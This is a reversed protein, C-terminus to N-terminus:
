LGNSHLLTLPMPQPFTRELLHMSALRIKTHPVDYYYKYNSSYAELTPKIWYWWEYGSEFYVIIEPLQHPYIHPWDGIWQINKNTDMVVGLMPMDFAASEFLNQHTAFYDSFNKVAQQQEWEDQIVFPSGEAEGNDVTVSGFPYVVLHGPQWGVLSTLLILYYPWTIQKNKIGQSNWLAIALLPWALALWFPFPYYFDLHGPNMRVASLNLALWPLACVYGLVLLPNRVYFAWIITLIFPLWIFTRYSLFFGLREQILDWNLHQWPPTGTYVFAMNDMSMFFESKLWLVILSYFLAVIMFLFIPKLLDAQRHCVKLTVGSLLLLGFLHLGADERIMLCLIFPLLACIYKTQSLFLFFWLILTPIGMELHPLRLAQVGIASFTVSLSIASATLEKCRRSSTQNLSKDIIIWLRYIGVAYGCYILASLAAWYNIKSLPVIYSLLNTLWLIPAMHVNFFSFPHFPPGQLSMDNHWAAYSFWGIDGMDGIVYFDKLVAIIVLTASVFSLIIPSIWSLPMGKLHISKLSM